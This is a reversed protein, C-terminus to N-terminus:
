SDMTLPSFTGTGPIGSDKLTRTLSIREERQVDLGHVIGVVYRRGGCVGSSVKKSEVVQSREGANVGVDLGLIGFASAGSATAAVVM